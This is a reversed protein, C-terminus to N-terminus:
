NGLFKEAQAKTVTKGDIVYTLTSPVHKVILESNGNNKASVEFGTSSAVIEMKRLKTNDLM